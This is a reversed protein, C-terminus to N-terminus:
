DEVLEGEVPEEPADQAAPLEALDETSLRAAAEMQADRLSDLRERLVAAPDKVEVTGEVHIEIGKGYGTRDLVAEASRILETNSAEDDDLVRELARHAKPVLRILNATAEAQVTAITEEPSYFAVGLETAHEFCYRAKTPDAIRTQCQKFGYRSSTTPDWGSGVGDPASLNYACRWPDLMRAHPERKLARQFEEATYPQFPGTRATAPPAASTLEGDDDFPSPEFVSASM